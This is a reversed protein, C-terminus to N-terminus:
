ITFSTQSGVKQILVAHSTDIITMNGSDEKGGLKSYAVFMERDWVGVYKAVM